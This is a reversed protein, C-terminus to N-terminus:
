RLQVDSYCWFWILLYFLVRIFQLKDWWWCTRILRSMPIVQFWFSKKKFWSSYLVVFHFMEKNNNNNNKFSLFFCRKTNIRNLKKPSIFYRYFTEICSQLKFFCYLLYRYRSFEYDIVPFSSICLKGIHLHNTYARMEKDLSWWDQLCLSLAEIFSLGTVLLFHVSIQRISYWKIQKSNLWPLSDIYYGPCM